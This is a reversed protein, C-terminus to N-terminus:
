SLGRGGRGEVGLGGNAQIHLTKNVLWYDQNTQSLPTEQLLLQRVLSVLPQMMALNKNKVSRDRGTGRGRAVIRVRVGPARRCAAPSLYVWM